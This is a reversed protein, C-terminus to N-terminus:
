EGGNHNKVVKATFISIIGGVCMGTIEPMGLHLGYLGIGTLFGTGIVEDLKDWIEM